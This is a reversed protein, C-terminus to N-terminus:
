EVRILSYDALTISYTVTFIHFCIVSGNV